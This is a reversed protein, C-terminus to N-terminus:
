SGDGILQAEAMDLTEPHFFASEDYVPSNELTYKTVDVLVKSGVWQIEKIHKRAILVKKGTLWSHM